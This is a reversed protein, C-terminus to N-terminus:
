YWPPDGTFGRDFCQRKIKPQTWEEVENGYSSTTFCYKLGHAERTAAKDFKREFRIHSWLMGLVPIELLTKPRRARLDFIFLTFWNSPNGPAGSFEGEVIAEEFGDGDVDAVAFRRVTKGRYTLSEDSDGERWAGGIQDVLFLRSFWEWCIAHNRGEFRYQALVAFRHSGPTATIEFSRRRVRRAYQPDEIALFSEERADPRGMVEFEPEGQLADQINQGAWRIPQRSLPTRTSPM